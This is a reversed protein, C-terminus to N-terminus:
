DSLVIDLGLVDDVFRATWPRLYRDWLECWAFRPPAKDALFGAVKTHGLTTALAHGAAVHGLLLGGFSQWFYEVLALHGGAIAAVFAEDVSGESRHQLLFTAMDVHGARSAGTLADRTCGERRHRHLFRVTAMDNRAAALDFARPNYGETRRHHLFAVVAVHGHMIAGTMAFSSCGEGRREHLFRVVDLHGNTSAYDMAHRTCPAGRDHLLQLMAVHGQECAEDLACSSCSLGLDLLFAVLAVDNSAAAHDVVSPSGLAPRFRLLRAIDVIPLAHRAPAPLATRIPYSHARYRQVCRLHAAMPLLPMPVGDQYATIAAVVDRSLLADLAAM